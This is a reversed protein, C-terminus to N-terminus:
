RRAPGVACYWFVAGSALGILAYLLYSGWTAPAADAAIAPMLHAILGTLPGILAGGALFVVPATLRAAQTVVILATAFPAAFVFIVPFGILLISVLDGAHVAAWTAAPGLAAADRVFLLLPLLVTAALCALAYCGMLRAFGGGLPPRPAADPEVEPFAM